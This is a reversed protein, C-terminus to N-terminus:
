PQHGREQPQVLTLCLEDDVDDGHCGHCFVLGAALVLLLGLWGWRRRPPVPGPPTSPLFRL